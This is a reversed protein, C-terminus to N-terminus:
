FLLFAQLCLTETRIQVTSSVLTNDLYINNSLREAGDDNGYSINHITISTSTKSQVEFYPNTANLADTTIPLVSSNISPQQVGNFYWQLKLQFQYPTNQTLGSVVYGSAIGSSSSHPVGDKYIEIVRNSADADNFDTDFNLTIEDHDKSPSTFSNIVPDEKLTLVTITNSVLIFSSGNIEYNMTLFVQYETNSQLSTTEISPIHTINTADNQVFSYSVEFSSTTINLPTIVYNTPAVAQTTIQVTNSKITLGFSTLGEVIFSYFTNSTLTPLTFERATSAVTQSQANYKVTFSLYSSTGQTTWLLKNTDSDYNLEVKDPTPPSDDIIPSQNIEDFQMTTQKNMEQSTITRDYRPDRYAKSLFSM